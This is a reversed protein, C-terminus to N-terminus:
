CFGVQGGEVELERGCVSCVDQGVDFLAMVEDVERSPPLSELMEFLDRRSNEKEAPVKTLGWTAALKRVRRRQMDSPLCEACQRKRLSKLVYQQSLCLRSSTADFRERDMRLLQMCYCSDESWHRHSVVRGSRPCDSRHRSHLIEDALPGWRYTHTHTHIYSRIYTNIFTYICVYTYVYPTHTHKHTHTHTHTNTHTYM